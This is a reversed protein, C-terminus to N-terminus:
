HGSGADSKRSEGPGSCGGWSPEAGLMMGLGIGDGDGDENEEEDDNGDEAGAGGM